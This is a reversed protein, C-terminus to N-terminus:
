EIGVLKMLFRANSEHSLGDRLKYDFIVEDGEYRESFHCFMINDYNKEAARDCLAYDHTTMFGSIHPASLRRLLIEAGDTRDQSNTGRFVEDILFMMPVDSTSANVISGIRILEAKFTSMNEELSDTIRMSTMIRMVSATVNSAPVRAGIYALVMMTGVTRILTTKGSMNSGTILAIKSDITVSNSVAKSPDLLPHKMDTGSFYAPKQETIHPVSSVESILGPVVACMVSEVESLGDVDNMFGNGYKVSWDFLRDACMLDFPMVANLILATIPQERLSCIGCSNILSQLSEYFGESMYTPVFMSMRGPDSLLLAVRERIAKSQRSIMGAKFIDSIDIRSVLFWIMLNIFIILLVAIRVYKSFGTFAMILPILWLFPIAKWLLKLGSSLPKDKSCLRILAEPIKDIPYLAGAAEYDLLFEPDNTLANVTKQVGTISEKNLTDFHKCKLRDAFAKRGLVSHSTNYLAFLSHPGFLDLDSSYAHNNDKFEAGDDTLPGFDGKIRSLYRDNAEIKKSLLMEENISRRHVIMVFIFICLIVGAIAFFLLRRGTVFGTIFSGAMIFFLFLRLLGLRRNKSAILDRAEAYEPAHVEFYSTM